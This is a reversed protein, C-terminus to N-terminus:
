HKPSNLPRRWNTRHGDGLDETLGEELALMFELPFFQRLLYSAADEYRARSGVTSDAALPLSAVRRDSSLEPALCVYRAAGDPRGLHEWERISVQVHTNWLACGARFCEFMAESFGDPHRLHLWRNAIM